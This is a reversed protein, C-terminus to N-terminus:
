FLNGAIERLQDALMTMQSQQANVCENEYVDPQQQESNLTWPTVRTVAKLAEQAAELASSDFLMLVYTNVIGGLTGSSGPDLLESELMGEAKSLADPEIKGDVDAKFAEVASRAENSLFDEIQYYCAVSFLKLQRDGIRSAMADLMVRPDNCALWEDQNM